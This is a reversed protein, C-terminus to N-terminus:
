KEKEEKSEESSDEKKNEEEKPNEQPVLQGGRMVFMRVNSCDQVQKMAADFGMKFRREAEEEIMSLLSEKTKNIVHDVIGDVENKSYKHNQIDFLDDVRNAVSKVLAANDVDGRKKYKNVMYHLSNVIVAQEKETFLSKAIKKEIKTKKM